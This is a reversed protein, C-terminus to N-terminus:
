CNASIVQDEWQASVPPPLVIAPKTGSGAFLQRRPVSDKNGHGFEALERIENVMMDRTIVELM